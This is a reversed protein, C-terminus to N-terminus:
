GAETIVAPIRYEARLVAAARATAARHFAAPLLLESARTDAAWFDRDTAYTEVAVPDAGGSGAADAASAIAADRLAASRDELWGLASDIEAWDRPAHTGTEWRSWSVQKLPRPPTAMLGIARAADAQSLGVAERRARIELPSISASM